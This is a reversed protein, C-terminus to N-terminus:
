EFSNNFISNFVCFLGGNDTDGILQFTNGTTGFMAFLEISGGGTNDFFVLDLKHTGQTLLATGFFSTPAHLTDDNIIDNGDIRLRAGDDNNTGFTYTGAVTIELDCQAHMTFNDDFGGPIPFNNGFIGISGNSDFHDIVNSFVSATGINAIDGSILGDAIKLNIVESDAAFSKILIGAVSNSTSLVFVILILVIKM